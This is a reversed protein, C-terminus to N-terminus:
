IGWSIATNNANSQQTKGTISLAGTSLSVGYTITASLHAYHGYANTSTAGTNNPKVNFMMYGEHQDTSGGQAGYAQMDIDFAIGASGSKYPAKSYRKSAWAHGVAHDRYRYQAFETNQIYTLNPNFTIGVVDTLKFTPLSLWKWSNKLKYIGHWSGKADLVKSVSLTMKLWGSDTSDSPLAQTTFEKTAEHMNTQKSGEIAQSESVTITGETTVKYYTTTEDVISGYVDDSVAKNFANYDEFTYTEIEENSFGFSNLRQIEEINLPRNLNENAFVPVSILFSLALIIVLSIKLHRM